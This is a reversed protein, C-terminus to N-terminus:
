RSNFNQTQLHQKAYRNTECVMFSIIEDITFHRYCDVPNVTNDESASTVEEVIGYGEQFETDSESEIESWVQLDVDDDLGSVDSLSNGSDETDTKEVSM